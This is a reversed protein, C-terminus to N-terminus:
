RDQSMGLEFESLFDAMANMRVNELDTLNKISTWIFNDKNEEMQRMVTDKTEIIRNHLEDKSFQYISDISIVSKNLKTMESNFSAPGDGFSIIRQNLDAVTLNFMSQYEELSRGWPVTNKLEFSM